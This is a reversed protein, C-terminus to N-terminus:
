ELILRYITESRYDQGPYLITDGFHKEHIANPLNQTELTIGAFQRLPNKWITDINVPYGHSYVVVAIEDTVMEIRRNKEPLSVVAHITENKDIIFPHDYGKTYDFQPEEALLRESLLTAKRVDFVTNDVESIVGTPITDSKLPLYCNSAIQLYHNEITQQNDGNLNFYVHNTPNFLTAEDTSAHYQIKWENNQNYSHIVTLDLNGPYNNHGAVDKYYFKIKVEQEAEEITYDFRQLDLGDFGGHLHNDGNNRELQYCENEITIKGQNIRGAVRGITAGYYSGSTFVEEANQHGLIIQEYEGDEKQIGWRNIRAGLDSFSIQTGNDNTIVIEDYQKGQYEGFSRVEVKM